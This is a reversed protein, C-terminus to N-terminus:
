VVLFQPQYKIDTTFTVTKGDDRLVYIRTTERGLTFPLGVYTPVDIIKDAADLIFVGPPDSISDLALWEDHPVDNAIVIGEDVPILFIYDLCWDYDEATGDAFDLEHIRAWKNAGGDNKFKLRWKDVSHNGDTFYKEVWEDAAPFAGTYLVNWGADYFAALEIESIDVSERTIWFRCGGCSIAAGLTLQLEQAFVGLAAYTAQSFTGTDEDYANAENAWAADTDVFGTPSKWFNTLDLAEKVYQYIRLELTSNLAIDSEKVPPIKILGLDLVEWTDTASNYYYEGSAAAPAKTRNGYSWGAGWGMKSYETATSPNVSCYALVRFLGRPPTAFQYNMRGIVAAASIAEHPEFRLREHKDGSRAADAEDSFTVDHTSDIIDTTSTEDEGQVWLDDNYRTGSRKAVWMKKDGAANTLALKIYMKAPVDGYAEATTIDMYNHETSYDENELTAQAIDQNTYRGLPSCNLVLRAQIVDYENSLVPSLFTQPLVLEGYLIDFFVSQGAVDGTQFELYVVAGYGLIQRQKADNLLRHLARLNTQFDALSTSIIHFDISIQRNEYQAAVLDSGDRFLSAAGWAARMRPPPIALGNKATKYDTGLLDLTTVGDSIKLRNTM